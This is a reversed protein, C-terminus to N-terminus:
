GQVSVVKGSLDDSGWRHKAAAQIGRFIGRGTYPSPDGAGSDLGAVHKTEKAIIAMDGPSTGVDEATIYHGGLREIFRGHARFIKERDLDRSTGIIVSKGGGLDLGAVSNKYTMGRSLRLADTLAADDTPYPWVRTGGVAPGLTTSHIAIIARYGVAPDQCLVVQEHGLKRILELSEM